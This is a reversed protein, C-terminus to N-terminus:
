RYNLPRQRYKDLCKTSCFLTECRLFTKSPIHNTESVFTTAIRNPNAKTIGKAHSSVHCFNGCECRQLTDMSILTHVPIMSEDLQLQLSSCKAVCIDLLTPIENSSDHLKLGESEDNIGTLCEPGLSLFELKLRPISGPLVKLNKNGKLELRKLQSMKGLTLGIKSLDNNAMNLTKLTSLNSIANPLFKLQNGSLDLLLLCRITPCHFFKMPLINIENKSLNLEKLNSLSEFSDPITSICNETLELMVLHSLALIRKDFLKLNIDIIKLIKLTSPFSTIIPYDKKETIMLKERLKSVQKTSAPNLGASTLSLIELESQSKAMIIKKLTKMFAKLQLPDANSILIDKAPNILSITCQGKDIFRDFVKKLNGRISYKNGALNNSTCIMMFIQFNSSINLNIESSFFFTIDKM